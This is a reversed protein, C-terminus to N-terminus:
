RFPYFFECLLKGLHLRDMGEHYVKSKSEIIWFVFVIYNETDIIILCSRRGSPAKKKNFVLCSFRNQHNTLILEEFVVDKPNANLWTEDLFNIKRGLKKIKEFYHRRWIVKDDKRSFM